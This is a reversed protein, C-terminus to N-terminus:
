DRGGKSFRTLSQPKTLKILIKNKRPKKLSFMILGRQGWKRRSTRQIKTEKLDRWITCRNEPAEHYPKVNEINVLKTKKRDALHILLNHAGKLSIIKFPGKWKPALKANKGLITFDRLLVWQNLAFSHPQAKLNFQEQM